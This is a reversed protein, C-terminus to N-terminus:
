SSSYFAFAQRPSIAWSIPDMRFNCLFILQSNPGLQDAVHAFFHGLWVLFMGNVISPDDAEATPGEKSSGM